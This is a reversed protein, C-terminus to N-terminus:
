FSTVLECDGNDNIIVSTVELTAKECDPWWGEDRAYTDMFVVTMDDEMTMLVDRLEKVTM